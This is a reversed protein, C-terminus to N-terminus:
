RSIVEQDLTYLFRLCFGRPQPDSLTGTRSCRNKVKLGGAGEDM